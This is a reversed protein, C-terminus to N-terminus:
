STLLDLIRCECEALLIIKSIVSRESPTTTAKKTGFLVTCSFGVLEAGALLGFVTAEDVAGTSEVSGGVPGEGVGSSGLASTGIRVGLTNTGTM